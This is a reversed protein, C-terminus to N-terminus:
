IDSIAQEFINYLLALDKQKSPSPIFLKQCIEHKTFGSIATCKHKTDLTLAKNIGVASM